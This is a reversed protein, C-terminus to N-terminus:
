CVHWTPAMLGVFSLPGTMLTAAATLASAILLITIRSPMLAVGVAKATVSGLPLLMLWRRCLPTVAILVAAVGATRLAQAGDVGYTSGALWTLLMGTRPDGSALVM